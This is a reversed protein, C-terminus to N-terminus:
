YIYPNIARVRYLANPSWFPTSTNVISCLMWKQTYYNVNYLRVPISFTCSLHLQQTPSNERWGDITGDKGTKEEGKKGLEIVTPQSLTRVSQYSKWDHINKRHSRSVTILQQLEWAVGHLWPLLKLFFFLLTVRDKVSQKKKKKRFSMRKGFVRSVWILLCVCPCSSSM